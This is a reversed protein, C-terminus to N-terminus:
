AKQKLELALAEEKAEALNAQITSIEENDSFDEGQGAASQLAFAAAWPGPEPDAPRWPATSPPRFGAALKHAGAAVLLAQMIILNGIKM